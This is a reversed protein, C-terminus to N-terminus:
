GERLQSLVERLRPHSVYRLGLRPRIHRPIRIEVVSPAVDKGEILHYLRVLFEAAWLLDTPDLFLLTLKM